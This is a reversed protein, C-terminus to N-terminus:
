RHRKVVSAHDSIADGSWLYHAGDGITRFEYFFRHEHLAPQDSDPLLRVTDSVVTGGVFDM